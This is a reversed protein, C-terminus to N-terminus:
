VVFDGAALAEEIRQIRKEKTTQNTSEAEKGTPGAEESATAKEIKDSGCETIDALQKEVILSENPLSVMHLDQTFQGDNFKHDIGYLYYFGNYWFRERTFTATSSPTDTTRPMFINLKVLGPMFDWNQLIRSPDREESTNGKRQRDSGRRNTQSMLFPNGHITVMAEVSELAAHRSLMASFLTSDLAGRINKEFVNNVNTSPFIPTKSRILIQEKEKGDSDVSGEGKPSPHTAVIKVNDKQTGVIQNVGTGITNTSAITQLFALGMEMKLDLDIIDINKGSFFYDFTILNEAITDPTVEDEVGQKGKANLVSKVVQNTVRAFRRVRYEVLIIDQESPSDNLPDDASLMTIESHIKFDYRIGDGDGETLDKQVRSCHSMISRIAQEVTSKVGFKFPGQTKTTDKVQDTWGDIEYEALKYPEELIIKYEVLRFQDLDKPEVFDYAKKLAGIVCERNEKSKENMLFILRQMSSDLTKDPPTFSIEKAIRSYQPLRAAGNNAGVFEIEYVGGTVDFTGSVNYMIFELPRLNPIYDSFEVGNKVGHGVFITKLMWIVGTADTQLLDCAGNLINMFRVGRPEEVTMKGEVAISTFKDQQDTSAATSTFWEVDRVVFDSNIMGNLIVVYAGVQVKDDKGDKKTTLPVLKEKEDITIPRASRLDRFISLQNSQRIYRAAAENDCAILIHHYSYSRFQTLINQPTSM